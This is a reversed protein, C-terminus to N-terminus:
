SFNTLYTSIRMTCPAYLILNVFSRGTPASNNWASPLVFLYSSVLMRKECNQSFCRFVYFWPHSVSYRAKCSSPSLIFCYSFLIVFSFGEPYSSVHLRSFSCLSSGGIGIWDVGSVQKKLIQKLIIRCGSGLNGLHDRERLTGLWCATRTWVHWM